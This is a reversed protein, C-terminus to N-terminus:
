RLTEAEAAEPGRRDLGTRREQGSRREQFALVWNTMTHCTPCHKRIPSERGVKTWEGAQIFFPKHQGCSECKFVCTPM